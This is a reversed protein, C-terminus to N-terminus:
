IWIFSISVAIEWDKLASSWYPDISSSQKNKGEYVKILWPSGFLLDMKQTRQLQLDIMVPSELYSFLALLLM